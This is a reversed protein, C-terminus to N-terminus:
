VRRCAIFMDRGLRSQLLSFSNVLKDRFVIHDVFPIRNLIHFSKFDIIEFRFDRFMKFMNKKSFFHIPLINKEDDILLNFEDKEIVEEVVERNKLYMKVYFDYDKRSYCTTIFVLGNNELLQEFKTLINTLSDTHVHQLVHSCLIVDISREKWELKEISTHQFVVKRSLGSKKATDKAMELLYEDPDIAIMKDFYSEFEPLLRGTGCGADLFCANIKNKTYTRVFNKMRELVFQESKAWYGEFPQKESIFTATLIDSKDPYFYDKKVLEV